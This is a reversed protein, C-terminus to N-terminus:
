LSRVLLVQPRGKCGPTSEYLFDWCLTEAFLPSPQLGLMQPHLDFNLHPTSTSRIYTLAGVPFDLSSSSVRSKVLGGSAVACVRIFLFLITPSSDFFNLCPPLCTLIPHCVILLLTFRKDVRGGHLLGGRQGHESTPWILIQVQISLRTEELTQSWVDDSSNIRVRELRGGKQVIRWSHM